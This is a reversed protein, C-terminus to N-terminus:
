YRQTTKEFALLISGRSPLTVEHEAQDTSDSATAYPIENGDSKSLHRGSVNQIAVTSYYHLANGHEALKRVFLEILPRSYSSQAM